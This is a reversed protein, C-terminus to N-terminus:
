AAAAAVEMLFPIIVDTIYTGAAYTVGLAAAGLGVYGFTNKLSGLSQYSVASYPLQGSENNLNYITDCNPLTVDPFDDSNRYKFTLEAQLETDYGTVVAVNKFIATMSVELVENPDEPTKIEYEINGENIAAAFQTIYSEPDTMDINPTTESGLTTLGGFVDFETGLTTGNTVTITVAHEGKPAIKGSFSFDVELFPTDVVTFEVEEELAETTNFYDELDPISHVLPLVAAYQATAIQEASPAATDISNFGQDVGSYADMDVQFYGATSDGITITTFQDFSWGTPITFGLNGSWGTSMDAVFYGSVYQSVNQCVNRDGYVGAEYSPTTQESYADHIGQFYPVVNSTIDSQLADYDVAFYIRTTGPIGLTKATEFAVQADSYGQDYNFYSEQYGGDEYIPFVSLGASFISQLESTTMAKSVGNATGTLYRGVYNFGASKVIQVTTDNLITACDCALADRSTDGASTMLGKITTMNAVGTVPLVMAQQFSEVAAAVNSDYVGNFNKPDYDTGNCYLAYELIKVFNTRSDNLSLTPCDATTTPGFTGTAESPSLGEECQLAYILATNTERSYLGNTQLLGTYANYQNNLSQQIVRINADGNADLVFPDTNLIAKMIMATVVGDQNIGADSEFEEVAAQTDTYFIGTFGGPNYGKCWFGGQLIYEKNTPTTLDDSSRISMTTFAAETEPGFTGTPTAIGLEIQLGAILAQEVQQGTEGNEDILNGGFVNTYQTNQGYTQNLWQQVELVMQDM